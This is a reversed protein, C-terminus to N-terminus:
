RYLKAPFPGQISRSLVAKESAGAEGSRMLRHFQLAFYVDCAVVGAATGFMAVGLAVLLLKVAFM